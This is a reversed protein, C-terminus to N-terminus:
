RASRPRRSPGIPDETVTEVASLIAVTPSSDFGAQTFLDIANKIIDRKGDL